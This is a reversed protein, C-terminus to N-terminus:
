TPGGQELDGVHRDIIYRVPYTLNKTKAKELTLWEAGEGEERELTVGAPSGLVVLYAHWRHHDSGRRCSDGAIYYSAIHKIQPAALGSEERLERVACQEATEGTDVHGSPVTFAYVPFIVRKFFLFENEPNRVFVGASEHWYVGDDDVWSNMAPDVVVRRENQRGCTRCYFFTKGDEHVREITEHGCHICYEHFRGDAPLSNWLKM